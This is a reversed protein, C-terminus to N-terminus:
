GSILLVIKHFKFDAVGVTRCPAVDRDAGLNGVLELSKLLHGFVKPPHPVTLALAEEAVEVVVQPALDSLVGHHQELLEAVLAILFNEVVLVQHILHLLGIGIELLVHLSRHVVLDGRHGVERHLVTEAVTELYVRATEAHEGAVVDLLGGVAADVHGGHAEEVFVAVERLRERDVALLDGVVLRLVEVLQGDLGHEAVVALRHHELHGVGSADDVRVHPTDVHAAHLEVQEVGVEVAVRLPVALDCVGEVAAVPLVADLLFVHEADAADYHEVLEADLGVEVVAVLAVGGQEVQLTENVIDVVVVEGEVHGELEHACRREVRDM